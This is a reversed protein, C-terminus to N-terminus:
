LHVRLVRGDEPPAAAAERPLRSLYAGAERPALVGGPPRERAPDDGLLALPGPQRGRGRPCRGTRRRRPLDRRDLDRHQARRPALRGLSGGAPPSLEGDLVRHPSRAGHQVVSPSPSRGPRAAAGAARGRPRTGGRPTREQPPYSRPSDRSTTRRHLSRAQRTGPSTSGKSASEEHGSDLRSGATEALM